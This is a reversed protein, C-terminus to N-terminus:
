TPCPWNLAWSLTPATVANFLAMIKLLATIKVATLSISVEIESLKLRALKHDFDVQKFKSLNSTQWHM